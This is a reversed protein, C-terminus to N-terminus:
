LKKDDRFFRGIHAAGEVGGVEEDHGFAMWLTRKPKYGAQLLEEVAGLQAILNNKDDIAGAGCLARRQPAILTTRLATTSM